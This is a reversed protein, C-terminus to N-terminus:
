SLIAKPTQTSTPLTPIAKPTQTSTPLTPIAKPTQTSTPLAQPSNIQKVPIKQAEQVPNFTNTFAEFGSTSNINVNSLDGFSFNISQSQTSAQSGTSGTQTGGLNKNDTDTM